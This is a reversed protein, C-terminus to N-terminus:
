FGEARVFLAVSKPELPLEIEGNSNFEECLLSGQGLWKKEASDLVKNWHGMKITPTISSTKNSFNFVTIADSGNSWRHLFIINDEDYSVVESNEKSLHALAPISKRLRILEKYFNFM